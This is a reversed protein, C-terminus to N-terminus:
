EKNAEPVGIQRMFERISTREGHGPERGGKNNSLNHAESTRLSFSFTSGKGLTSEIRVDGGMAEVLSRVIFLGIGTGGFRRVDSSEAQWFKELCHAVQDSTMGIGTDAVDVWVVGNEAHGSIRIPGGDPSYKVANDLLHDVVTTTANPDAWVSPLDGGAFAVDRRTANRLSAVSESLIAALDVDSLTVHTRGTEIRSSLLIRDLITNLQRARREIAEAAERETETGGIKDNGMLQAFGHIVTLPTKLEHSATALFMTKADEAEKRSTFDQAAGVVGVVRNTEDDVIPRSYVSLWRVDGSKTIIRFDSSVEQGRMLRPLRQEFAVVDDPHLIGRWAGRNEWEEKDFGTIRTFADTIWEVKATGEDDFSFAYAFDSTLEALTRYRGETDRRIQDTRDREIAIGALHTARQVLTLDDDSPERPERYYLAFTGLISGDASLIPNSWCARLGHELAIDKFDAWRRDTEIDRVVILKRRFAATGCSGAAPGIPVDGIAELYPQPLSPAAGHTLHTGDPDMLLISAIMGDSVSEITLALRELVEVLPSGAAIMELISKEAAKLADAKLEASVDRLVAVDHTGWPGKVHRLSLDAPFDSGDPRHARVRGQNGQKILGRLGHSANHFLDDVPRGILDDRAIGFLTAAPSNAGIVSDGDFALAADPILDLIGWDAVEVSSSLARKRARSTRDRGLASFVRGTLAM